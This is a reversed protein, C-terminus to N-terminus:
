QGRRRTLEYIQKTRCKLIRAVDAAERDTINIVRIAARLFLYQALIPCVGTSVDRNREFDGWDSTFLDDFGVSRCEIHVQPLHRSRSHLVAGFHTDREKRAIDVPCTLAM